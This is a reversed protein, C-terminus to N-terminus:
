VCIYRLTDTRWWASEVFECRIIQMARRGKKIPVFNAIEVNRACNIWRVLVDVTESINQSSSLIFFERLMQSDVRVPLHMHFFFSHVFQIQSLLRAVSVHTYWIDLRIPRVPECVLVDDFVSRSRVRRRTEIQMRTLRHFNACATLKNARAVVLVCARSLHVIRSCLASLTLDYRHTIKTNRNRKPHKVDSRLANWKCQCLQIVTAQSADDSFGTAHKHTCPFVASLETINHM